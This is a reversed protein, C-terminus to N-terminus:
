AALKEEIRGKWFDEWWENARVIRLAVMPNISDPHWCAGPLKLRKQPIMKHASEVEGSGIPYGHKTFHDYDVADAFRTLYELFRRVRDHPANAYTEELEAKVTGVDGACIADLRTKVWAVREQQSLGVAEATEYLHDKLHPKDLVFQMTPFQKELEEKLGIGGDGVGIVQTTPAMGQLVAAQVLDSVVDPYSAKKGVYTKSMSELPRAFGIRVERWAIEKQQTPAQRVPTRDQAQGGPAFVATRIECGDLDVVMCEVGEAFAPAHESADSAEALTQEVYSLADEAVQKTVRSVTSAHVEYKYHEAFRKAAHRFSDESGFDSLARTVAESRGNHTLNM